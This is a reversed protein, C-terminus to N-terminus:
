TVAVLTWACRLVARGGAIGGVSLLMPSIGLLQVALVLFTGPMNEACWRLPVPEGGVANEYLRFMSEAAQIDSIGNSLSKVDVTTMLQFPETRKGTRFAAVNPVGARAVVVVQERPRDPPKDMTIFMFSGIEFDYTGPM